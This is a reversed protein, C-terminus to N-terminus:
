DNYKGGTITLIGDNYGKMYSVKTVAELLDNYVKMDKDLNEKTLTADLSDIYREIGRNIYAISTEVYDTSAKPTMNFLGYKGTYFKKCIFIYSKEIEDINDNLENSRWEILTNAVDTGEGYIDNIVNKIKNLVDQRKENIYKHMINEGITIHPSM